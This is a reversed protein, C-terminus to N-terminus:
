HGTRTGSARRATEPLGRDHNIGGDGVSEADYVV